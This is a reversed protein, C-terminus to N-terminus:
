RRWCQLSQLIEEDNEKQGEKIQLSISKLKEETENEDQNFGTVQEAQNEVDISDDSLGDESFSSDSHRNSENVSSACSTNHISSEPRWLQSPSRLRAAAPLATDSTSFVRSSKVRELSPSTQRRAFSHYRRAGSSSILYFLYYKARM